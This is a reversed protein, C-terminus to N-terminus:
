GDIIAWLERKFERIKKDRNPWHIDKDPNKALNDLFPEIKSKILDEKDNKEPVEEAFTFGFDHEPLELAGDVPTKAKESVKQAEGYLGSSTMM